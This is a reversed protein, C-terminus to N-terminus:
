RSVEARRLGLHAALVATFGLLVSLLRTWAVHTGGVGEWVRLLTAYLPTHVETRGVTWMHAFGRSAQALSFLEDTWYSQRAALAVRIVGAAAVVLLTLLVLPDRWWRRARTRGAPPSPATVSVDTM